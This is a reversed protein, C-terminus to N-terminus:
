HTTRSFAMSAAGGDLPELEMEDPGPRRLVHRAEPPGLSLEWDDTGVERVFWHGETDPKTYTGDSRFTWRQSGAEDGDGCLWPGVVWDTTNQTRVAQASGCVEFDFLQIPEKQEKYECTYRGYRPLERVPSSYVRHEIPSDNASELSTLLLRAEGDRLAGASQPTLFQYGISDEEPRINGSHDGFGAWRVAAGSTEALVVLLRESFEIRITPSGSPLAHAAVEPPAEGVDGGMSSATPPPSATDPLATSRGRLTWGIGGLVLLTGVVAVAAIAAWRRRSGQTSRLGASAVTGSGSATPSPAPAPVPAAARLAAAMASASPFRDSPEKALAKLIVTELWEPCVVGVARPTLPADSVHKMAIALPTTASFPVRGTVMQYLVVGLGYIDTRGDIPNGRVLEPSMYEPTGISVGTSTLGTSDAVKAIGFDTVVARGSSDILINAPKIDRHVVDRQHAHDLADAVEAAIKAAREPLLAGERQVLSRLSEGDIYKMAFFPTGDEEGVDIVDVINPHRLRAMSHAERVFRAATTADGAMEAPLIKVAVTRNLSQQRAEYVVGMGGRGIELVIEFGGLVRGIM